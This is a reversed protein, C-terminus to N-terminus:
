RRVPQAELFGPVRRSSAPPWGRVQWRFRCWGTERSIGVRVVIGPVARLPHRGAQTLAATKYGAARIAELVRLDLDGWPPCVHQCVAGLSEELAARSAVLARDLEAATLTTMRIPRVGQSGMTWGALSLERLMSWSMAQGGGPLLRSSSIHGTPLYVTAVLGRSALAPFAQTYVERHGGDFTVAVGPGAGSVAAALSIVPLGMDALLDLQSAFRRPSLFAPTSPYALVTM